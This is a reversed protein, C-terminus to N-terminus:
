GRKNNDRKVMQAKNFIIPAVLPPHKAPAKLEGYKIMGLYAENGILYGLAARSWPKDHRNTLGAEALAQTLYAEGRDLLGDKLSAFQAAAFRGNGLDGVLHWWEQGGQRSWEALADLVSDSGKMVLYRNCAKGLAEASIPM